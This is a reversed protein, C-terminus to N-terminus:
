LMGSPPASNASSTISPARASGSTKGASTIVTDAVAAAHITTPFWGRVDRRAEDHVRALEDPRHDGARDGAEDAHM